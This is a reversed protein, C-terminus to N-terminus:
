GAPGNWLLSQAVDGRICRSQQHRMEWSEIARDAQRNALVRQKDSLMGWAQRTVDEPCQIALACAAHGIWARRNLSADSLANLCSNPWELIVRQMFKGYLRHHGTFIVARQLMRVRNKSEGWMNFRIEEWQDIPVWIRKM